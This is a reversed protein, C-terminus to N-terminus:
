STYEDTAQPPFFLKLLEFILGGCVVFALLAQADHRDAVMGYMIGACM